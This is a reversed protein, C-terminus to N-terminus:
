SPNPKLGVERVDHRALKRTAERGGFHPAVGGGVVVTVFGNEVRARLFMFFGRLIVKIVMFCLGSDVTERSFVRGRECTEARAERDFRHTGDRM